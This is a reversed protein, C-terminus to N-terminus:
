RRDATHRGRLWRPRPHLRGLVVALVDGDPVSGVDFSTVGERPNDSDLWWRDGAEPDRGTIQLCDEIRIGSAGLQQALNQLRGQM